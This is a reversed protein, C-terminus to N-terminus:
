KIIVYDKRQKLITHTNLRITFYNITANKNEKTNNHTVTYSLYIYM